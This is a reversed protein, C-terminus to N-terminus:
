HKEFSTDAQPAANSGEEITGKRYRKAPLKKTALELNGGLLAEKVDQAPHMIVIQQDHTWYKSTGAQTTPRKSTPWTDYAVSWGKYILQPPGQLHHRHTQQGQQDDGPQHPAEGQVQKPTCYKEIFAWNIPAQHDSGPVRPGQQVEGLGLSEENPACVRCITSPM